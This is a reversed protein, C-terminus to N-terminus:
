PPGSLSPASHTRGTRIGERVLESFSKVSPQKSSWGKRGALVSEGVKELGEGATQISGSGTSWSLSEVNSRTKHPRYARRRRRPTKSTKNGIAVVSKKLALSSAMILRSRGRATSAVRQRDASDCIFQTRRFVRARKSKFNSGLLM